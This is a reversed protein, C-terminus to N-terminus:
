STIPILVDQSPSPSVLYWQTKFCRSRSFSHCVITERSYPVFVNRRYEHYTFVRPPEFHWSVVGSPTTPSPARRTQLGMTGLIALLELISFDQYVRYFTRKRSRSSSEMGRACTLVSKGKLASAFDGQEVLNRRWSM